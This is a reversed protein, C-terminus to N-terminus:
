SAEALAEIPASPLRRSRIPLRTISAVSQLDSPQQNSDLRPLTDSPGPTPSPAPVAGNELWAMPVGTKMAWMAVTARNPRTRGSIYNGVTNREVGLVGAMETVGIGSIRLAKRMRDPMDFALDAWLHDPANTM